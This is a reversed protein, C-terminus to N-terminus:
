GHRRGLEFAENLIRETNLIASDVSTPKDAMHLELKGPEKDVRRFCVAHEHHNAWIERPPNWIFIAKFVQGNFEVRGKYTGNPVRFTGEWVGNAVERWGKAKWAADFKSMVEIPEARRVM